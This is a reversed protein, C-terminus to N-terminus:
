GTASKWPFGHTSHLPAPASSGRTGAPAMRAGAVEWGHEQWRGATSLVRPWPLLWTSPTQSGAAACYCSKPSELPQMKTKELSVHGQPCCATNKRGLIGHYAPVRPLEKRRFKTTSVAWSWGARLTHVPFPELLSRPGKRGPAELSGQVTLSQDQNCDRPEAAIYFFFFIIGVRLM